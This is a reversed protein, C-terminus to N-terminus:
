TLVRTDDQAGPETGRVRFFKNSARTITESKEMISNTLLSLAQLSELTQAIDKSIQNVENTALNTSKSQEGIAQVIQQTLTSAFEVGKAIQDSGAKQEQTAVNIEKMANTVKAINNIIDKVASEAAQAKSIETEILRRGSESTQVANKVEEQIGGILMSIETTAKSSDDALRRVEEAVVAFGKGHEGARAAEIAANLALLNTQKSINNITQIISGIKSAKVGLANIVSAMNAITTSITTIGQITNNVTNGSVRAKKVTDESLSAVSQANRAVQSASQAMEEMAASSEHSTAALEQVSTQIRGINQNVIELAKVVAAAKEKNNQAMKVMSNHQDNSEKTHYSLLRQTEELSKSFDKFDRIFSSLNESFEAFEDPLNDLPVDPVRKRAFSNLYEIIRNLPVITKFYFFAGGGVLLGLGILGPALIEFEFGGRYAAMGLSAAYFAILVVVAIIYQLSISHRIDSFAM